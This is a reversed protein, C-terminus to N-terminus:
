NENGTDGEQSCQTSQCHRLREHCENIVEQLHMMDGVTCFPPVAEVPLDEPPTTAEPRTLALLVWCAGMATALLMVGWVTRIMDGLEGAGYAM